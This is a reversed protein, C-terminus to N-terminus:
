GLEVAGRQPHVAHLGAGLGRRRDRRIVPVRRRVASGCTSGCRGRGPYPTEPPALEDLEAFLEADHPGDCPVEDQSGDPDDICFSETPSIPVLRPDDIQGCELLGYSAAAAGASPTSDGWALLAKAADAGKGNGKLLKVARPALKGQTAELEAILDLVASKETAAPRLGEVASLEVESIAAIKGFYVRLAARQKANPARGHTVVAVAGVLSPPTAVNM